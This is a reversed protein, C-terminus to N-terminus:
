RAADGRSAPHLALPQVRDGSQALFIREGEIELLLLTLRPTVRRVEIVNIRGAASGVSGLSGPLWRKLAYIGAIGIVIVAGLALATRLVLEADLPGADRKFAIPERPTTGEPAALAALAISGALLAGVLPAIARRM